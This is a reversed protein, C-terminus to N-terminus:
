KVVEVYDVSIAPIHNLDLAKQFNEIPMKDDVEADIIEGDFFDVRKLFMHYEDDSDNTLTLNEYEFVENPTVTFKIYGEFDAM